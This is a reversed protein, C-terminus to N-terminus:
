DLGVLWKIKSWFVHKKKDNKKHYGYKQLVSFFVTEKNQPDLAM